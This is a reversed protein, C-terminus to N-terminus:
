AAEAKLAAIEADAFSWVGRLRYQWRATPSLAFVANQWYGYNRKLDDGERIQWQLSLIKHIDSEVAPLERWRFVLHFALLTAAAGLLIGLVYAQEPHRNAMGYLGLVITTLALTRVELLFHLILSLFRNM